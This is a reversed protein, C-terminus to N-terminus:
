GEAKAKTSYIREGEKGIIIKGSGKMQEIFDTELTSRVAERAFLGQELKKRRNDMKKLFKRKSAFWKYWFPRPHNDIWNIKQNIKVIENTYLLIPYLHSDFLDLVNKTKVHKTFDDPSMKVGPQKNKKKSM